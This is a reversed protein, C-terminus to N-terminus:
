LGSFPDSKTPTAAVPPQSADRLAQERKTRGMAQQGKVHAVVDGAIGLDAKAANITGIPQGDVSVVEGAVIHIGEDGDESVVEMLIQQIGNERAADVLGQRHATDLMSAERILLLRLRPKIKAAIACYISMRRAFSEREVPADNWLVADDDVSLGQVPYEAAAIKATMADELFTVQADVTEHAKTRTASETELRKADEVADVYSNTVTALRLKQDIAQRDEASPANPIAHQEMQRVMSGREDELAKLQVKAEEIRIEVSDLDEVMGERQREAQAHAQMARDWGGQETVVAATDIRVTQANATGGQSRLVEARQDRLELAHEAAAKATRADSGKATREDYARKWKAKDETLDLGVLKRLVDAKKKPEWGDFAIPDFSTAEFLKNLFNQPPGPETSGDPRKILVSATKDDKIRRRVTYAVPIEDGEEVVGYAGDPMLGLRLELLSDEEGRQITGPAIKGTIAVMIADLINTKGQENAGTVLTGGLGIALDVATLNRFREARLGIVVLPTNEEENQESM